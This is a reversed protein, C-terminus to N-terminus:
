RGQWGHSINKLTNYQAFDLYAGTNSSIAKGIIALSAAYVPRIFYFGGLALIGLFVGLLVAYHKNRTFRYHQAFWKNM